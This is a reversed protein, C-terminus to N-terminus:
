SELIPSKDLTADLFPAVKPKDFASFWNNQDQISKFAKKIEFKHDFTTEFKKELREYFSTSSGITRECEM